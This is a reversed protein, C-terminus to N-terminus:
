VQPFPIGGFPSPWPLSEAPPHGPTSCLVSSFGTTTAPTVEWPGFPQSTSAREGDNAKKRHGLLSSRKRTPNKPRSSVTSHV